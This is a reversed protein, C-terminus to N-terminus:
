CISKPEAAYLPSRAVFDPQNVLMVPHWSPEQPLKKTIYLTILNRRAAFAEPIEQQAIALYIQEAQDYQKNKALEEAQKILNAPDDAGLAYQTVILTYLGITIIIPIRRLM